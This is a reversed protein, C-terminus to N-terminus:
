SFLGNKCGEKRKIDMQINKYLLYKFDLATKFFTQPLGHFFM